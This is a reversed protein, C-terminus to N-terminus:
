KRLQTRQFRLGSVGHNRWHLLPVPTSLHSLGVGWCFILLFPFCRSNMLCFLLGAIFCLSPHTTEANVKHGSALLGKQDEQDRAEGVSVSVATSSAKHIIGSRDGLDALSVSPIPACVYKIHLSICVFYLSNCTKLIM